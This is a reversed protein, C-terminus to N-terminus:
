GILVREYVKLYERAPREWSYDGSMGSKRLALLAPRATRWLRVARALAGLMTEPEYEPFVFGNGGEAVDRVSDRLGGTARVVPITGYRLAYLQTLGCPEFRSPMLLFDAGALVRHAWRESYESLIRVRDPWREEAEQFFGAYKAEGTGLIVLSVGLAMMRELSTVVLDLGKQETLRGVMAVVPGAPSLGLTACLRRRNWAKGRLDRASYSAWLHEDAAPNWEELDIGNLIGVLDPARGRLVADLGLGDVLIEQAYTPSVTTLADAARMGAGLACLWDGEGSARWFEPPLGLGQFVARPFWGQFALNHITLVTKAATEKARLYFPLLATHWDHVHFIQTSWGLAPAVEVAAKCLFAFRVLNDPYDQDGEGYIGPRGYYPPFDLLFVPVSSRPLFARLVRVEKPEGGFEVPLRLVESLAPSIGGYRPLFVCVELGLQALAKPLSGVVDGLGGAKAFPAAEAAVFAVRM